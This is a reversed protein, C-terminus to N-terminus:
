KEAIEAEEWEARGGVLESVRMREDSVKECMAAENRENATCKM